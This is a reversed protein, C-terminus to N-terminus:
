TEMLKFKNTQGNEFVKFINSIRMSFCNNM